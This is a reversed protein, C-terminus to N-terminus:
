PSEKRGTQSRSPSKEPFIQRFDIPSDEAAYEFCLAIEAESLPAFIQSSDGNKPGSRLCEEVKARLERRSRELHRSASSEHEGILRGIEALTKDRAYYLELRTRDTANLSNLCDNLALLFCQLYRSRHPDLSPTSIIQSPPLGEQEGGPQQFSEWRRSRRICDIHRQALITRLWTKLSSRGHFYRFLSAEGRTGDALGYLEAFLSDALEQADTGSRGGKTIAGAAARLYGRYNRIFHEWASESGDLCAAALVLDDVHLTELYEQLKERTAPVEAFRKLVSREVVAEFQPRTLQWLSAPSAAYLAALRVQLERLLVTPTLQPGSSSDHPVFDGQL